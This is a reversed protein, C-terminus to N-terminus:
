FMISSAICCAKLIHKFVIRTNKFIGSHNSSFRAKNSCLKIFIFTQMSIDQRGASCSVIGSFLARGVREQEVHALAWGNPSMHLKFYDQAWVVAGHEPERGISPSVSM